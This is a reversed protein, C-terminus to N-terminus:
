GGVAMTAQKRRTKDLLESECLALHHNKISRFEEHCPPCLLIDDGGISVKQMCTTYFESQKLTDTIGCWDCKRQNGM